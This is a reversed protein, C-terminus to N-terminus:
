SSEQNTGLDPLNLENVWDRVKAMREDVAEDVDGPERDADPEPLVGAKELVEPDVFIAAGV